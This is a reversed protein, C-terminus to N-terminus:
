DCEEAPKPERGLKRWGMKSVSCLKAKRAGSKRTIWGNNTAALLGDSRDEKAGHMEAMVASSSREELPVGRDEIQALAQLAGLAGERRDSAEAEEAETSFTRGDEESYKLRIKEIIPGRGNTHFNVSDKQGTLYWGYDMWDELRTVGRGREQAEDSRGTHHSLLSNKISARDKIDDIADLFKAAGTNDSESQLLSGWAKVTPDLIWYEIENGKMWEVVQDRVTKLWIPITGKGRLHVPVIRDPHDIKMRSMWENWQNPMLEYNWIAVRGKVQRVDFYRFLPTGDVLSRALNMTVTTKGLKYKAVLLVNHGEVQLQDIVYEIQDEGAELADKLSWGLPPLEWSASDAERAAKIARAEDRVEVVYLQRHVDEDWDGTWQTWRDSSGGRSVDRLAPEIVRKKLYTSGSDASDWKERVLASRRLIRELQDVDKARNAIMNALALDARSRDDEYNSIDGEDFLEIFGKSGKRCKGIVKDDETLEFSSSRVVSGNLSRGTFTFYRGRDYLELDGGWGMRVKSGTGVTGKYIVHVGTGSPSLETYSRIQDLLRQAEPHINGSEDICHDLDAGAYPDDDTFVFGVGDLGYKDVADLAEDLTSWDQSRTSAAERGDKARYPIKTVKGQHNPALKWCVWQKRTALERPVKM